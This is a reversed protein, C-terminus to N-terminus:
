TSNAGSAARESEADGCAMVNFSTASGVTVRGRRATTRGCAGGFANTTEVILGVWGCASADIATDSFVGTTAV